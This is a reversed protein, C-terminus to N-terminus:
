LKISWGSKVEDCYNEFCAFSCRRMLRLKVVKRM